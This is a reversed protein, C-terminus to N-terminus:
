RKGNFYIFTVICFGLILCVIYIPLSIALAESQSMTELRGVYFLYNIFTQVAASLALLSIYHNRNM